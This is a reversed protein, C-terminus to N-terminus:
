PRAREAYRRLHAAAATLDAAATTCAALHADIAERLWRPALGDAELRAGITRLREACDALVRADSQLVQAHAAIATADTPM